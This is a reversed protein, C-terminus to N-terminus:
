VSTDAGLALIRDEDVSVVLSNHVWEMIEYARVDRTFTGFRVTTQYLSYPEHPVLFVSFSSMFTISM